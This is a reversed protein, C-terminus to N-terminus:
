VLITLIYYNFLIIGLIIGILRFIIKLNQPIDTLQIVVLDKIILIYNALGFLQIYLNDSKLTYVGFAIILNLMIGGYRLRIGSYSTIEPLPFWKVVKIRFPLHGLEHIFVSIFVFIYTILLKIILEM